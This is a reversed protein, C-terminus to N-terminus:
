KKPELAKPARAQRGLQWLAFGDYFEREGPTPVQGRLIKLRIATHRDPGWDPPPYKGFLELGKKLEEEKKKKEAEPDPVPKKPEEPKPKEVAPPAPKARGAEEEQQKRLIAKQREVEELTKKDLNQLKRVSKLQSKRVTMTGNLGPYETGVDLTLASERTYDPAEVKEGPARPPAVLRGTLTAGSLFTIEVRDGVALKKYVDDQAFATGALLALAPALMAKRM